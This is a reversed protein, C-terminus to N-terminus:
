GIKYIEDYVRATVLRNVLYRILLFKNLLVKQICV